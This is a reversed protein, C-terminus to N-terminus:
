SMSSFSVNLRKTNMIKISTEYYMEKPVSLSFKNLLCLKM